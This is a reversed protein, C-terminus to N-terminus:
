KGPCNRDGHPAGPPATPDSGTNLEARHKRGQLRSHCLLHGRTCQRIHVQAQQAVIVYVRHFLETSVPEWYLIHRSQPSSPALACHPSGASSWSQAAEPSNGPCCCPPFRHVTTPTTNLTRQQRDQLMSSDDPVEQTCMQAPSHAKDHFPHTLKKLFVSHPPSPCCRCSFPCCGQAQSLLQTRSGPAPAAGKSSFRLPQESHGPHVSSHM